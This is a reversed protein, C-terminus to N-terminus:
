PRENPQQKTGHFLTIYSTLVCEQLVLTYSIHFVISVILQYGLASGFVYSLQCFM